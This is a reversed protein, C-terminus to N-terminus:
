NKLNYKNLYKQYLDTQFNKDNYIKGELILFQIQHTPPNLIDGKSIILSALKGEEISGLQTDIGLIKAPNYTISQLAKEKSLGYPVSMGAVFPLNRSHMAEMDGEMSMAYLIQNKELIAPLEFNIKIPDDTNPPLSNIRRLIVPYSYKKVIDLVKYIEECGVLVVNPIQFEQAIQIANMIDSSRHAHLYMRKKGNWIDKMAEYRPNFPATDKSLYYSKSQTLFNRLLHIHQFFDKNKNAKDPEAWWGSHVYESPIYVHIGDELIQADEWNWAKTKVVASTGAIYGGRPTCQTYM